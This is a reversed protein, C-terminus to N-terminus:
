TLANLNNRVRPRHTTFITLICFENLQIKITNLKNLKTMRYNIKCNAIYFKFSSNETIAQTITLVLNM